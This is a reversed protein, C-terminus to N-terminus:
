DRNLVEVLKNRLATELDVQDRHTWTDFHRAPIKVSKLFLIKKSGKGQASKEKLKRIQRLKTELKKASVAKGSRIEQIEGELKRIQRANDARRINQTAPGAKAGPPLPIALAEANKPRLVGGPLGTTGWNMMAAYFLKTGITVTDGSFRVIGDPGAAGTPNFPAISKRLTGRSSLAMGARFRLSPWAEHGNYSGERDFLMGRNFQVQAAIFLNLEDEAALLKRKWEPFRFDIDIM